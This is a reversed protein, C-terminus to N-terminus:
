QKAKEEDPGPDSVAPVSEELRYREPDRVPELSAAAWGPGAGVSIAFVRDGARGYILSAAEADQTENGPEPEETYFDEDSLGRLGSLYWDLMAEQQSKTPASQGSEAGTNCFYELLVGSSDDFILRLSGGEELDAQMQWFYFYNDSDSELVMYRTCVFGDEQIKVDIGSIKHFEVVQAELWHALRANERVLAELGLSRVPFRTGYALLALKESMEVTENATDLDLERVTETWSKRGGFDLGQVIWPLLACVLIVAATIVGAAIGNNKKM